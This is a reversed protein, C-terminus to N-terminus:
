RNGDLVEKKKLTAERCHEESKGLGCDEWWPEHPTTDGCACDIVKDDEFYEKLTSSPQLMTWCEIDDGKIDPESGDPLVTIFHSFTEGTFWASCLCYGHKYSVVLYDEWHKSPDPTEKNSHWELETKIM